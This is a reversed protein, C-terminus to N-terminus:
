SAPIGDAAPVEARRDGRLVSIGAAVLLLGGAVGFFGGFRLADVSGEWKVIQVMHATLHLALLAGVAILAGGARLRARPLRLLWLMAVVAVAGAVLVEIYFAGGWEELLGSNEWYAMNMVLPSLALVVGAATLVRSLRPWGVEPARRTLLGLAGAAAIAAAGVATFRVTGDFDFESGVFAAMAACVIVGVGLLLGDAADRSLRGRRTALVAAIVLLVAGFAELPSWIAWIL